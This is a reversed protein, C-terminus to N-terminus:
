DARRAADTGAPRARCPRRAVAAVDDVDARDGAGVIEAAVAGIVRGLRRDAHQRALQADIGEALAHAHGLDARAPDRGVDEGMHVAVDRLGALAEDFAELQRLGDSMASAIAKAMAAGTATLMPWMSIVGVRCTGPPRDVPRSGARRAPRGRRRLAPAHLAEVEDAIRSFGSNPRSAARVADPHRKMSRRRSRAAPSPRPSRAAPSGASASGCRRARRRAGVDGVVAVHRRQHLQHEPIEADGAQQGIPRCSQSASWLASAIKAIM